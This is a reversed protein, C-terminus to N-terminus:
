FVVRLAEKNDSFVASLPNEYTKKKFCTARLSLYPSLNESDPPEIHLDKNTAKEARTATHASPM